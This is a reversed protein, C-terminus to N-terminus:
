TIWVVVCHTHKVTHANIIFMQRNSFFKFVSLTWCVISLKIRSHRWTNMFVYLFISTRFILIGYSKKCFRLWCQCQKFATLQAPTNAFWRKAFFGDIFNTKRVEIKKINKHISSVNGHYLEFSRGVLAKENWSLHNLNWSQLLAELSTRPRQTASAYLSILPKEEKQKSLINWRLLHFVIWIPWQSIISVVSLSTM